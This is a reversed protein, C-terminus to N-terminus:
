VIAASHVQFGLALCTHQLELVDYNNLPDQKLEAEGFGGFRLQHGHREGREALLGLVVLRTLNM